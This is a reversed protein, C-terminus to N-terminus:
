KLICLLENEFRLGLDLHGPEPNRVLTVMFSDHRLVLHESDIILHDQPRLLEEAPHAAARAPPPPQPGHPSPGARRGRLGPVGGGQVVGLQVEAVDLSLLAGDTFINQKELRSRVNGM